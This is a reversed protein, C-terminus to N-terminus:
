YSILCSDNKSTVSIICNIKRFTNQYFILIRQKNLSTKLRIKDNDRLLRNTKKHSVYLTGGGSPRPPPLRSQSSYIPFVM